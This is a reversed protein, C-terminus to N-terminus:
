QYKKKQEQLLSERSDYENFDNNRLLFEKHLGQPCYKCYEIKRKALNGMFETTLIEEIKNYDVYIREKDCIYEFGCCPDIRGDPFFSIHNGIHYCKFDESHYIYDSYNEKYIDDLSQMNKQKDLNNNKLVRNMKPKIDKIFSEVQEESLRAEPLNIADELYSPWFKDAHSKLALDLIKDIQNYNDNMMVSQVIFIFNYKLKLESLVQLARLSRKFIEGNGRTENVTNEDVGYISLVIQDLGLDLWKKVKEEDIFFGSTNIRTALGANHAVSIFEDLNQVITPEGGSLAIYTGGINKIANCLKKFNNIDFYVKDYDIKKFESLRNKCCKCNGPCLTTVKVMFNYNKKEM